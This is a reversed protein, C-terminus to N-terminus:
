DHLVDSANLSRIFRPSSQTILTKDLNNKALQVSHIRTSREGLRMAFSWVPKSAQFPHCFQHTAGCIRWVQGYGLTIANACPLVPEALRHLPIAHRFSPRILSCASIDNRNYRITQRGSKFLPRRRNRIENTCVGLCATLSKKWAIAFRDGRRPICMCEGAFVGQVCEFIM